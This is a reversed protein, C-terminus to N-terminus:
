TSNGIEITLNTNSSAQLYLDGDFTKITYWFDKTAHDFYSPRFKWTQSRFMSGNIVELEVINGATIEGNKPSLFLASGNQINNSNMISFFYLIQNAKLRMKIHFRPKRNEKGIEFYKPKRWGLVATFHQGAPTTRSDKYRVRSEPILTAGQIFM